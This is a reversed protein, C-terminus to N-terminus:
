LVARQAVAADFGMAIMTLAESFEDAPSRDGAAAGPDAGDADALLGLSDAALRQQEHFAYGVVFHMVATAAARWLDAPAGGGPRGVIPPEVLGLALSSSVLEAADRYALLCDRLRGGLLELSARAALGETGVDAMPALILGSVAALLSQKNRFHWYLASPRVELANAINRMTLDPLGNEDLLRLATRAVDDRSHRRDNEVSTV